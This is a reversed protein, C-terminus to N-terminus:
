RARRQGPPIRRASNAPATAVSAEDGPHQHSSDQGPFLEEGHHVGDEERLAVPRETKIVGQDAEERGLEPHVGAPRDSGYDKGDTYQDHHEGPWRLLAAFAGPKGALFASPAVKFREFRELQVRQLVPFGPGAM